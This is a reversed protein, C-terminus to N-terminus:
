EQERSEEATEDADDAFWPERAKMILAAAAAEDVGEIETLEDVSLEALDDMTCVGRDALQYALGPTMGEMTLLDDTPERSEDGTLAATLLVDRARARLTEVLDEDFGDISLMEEVPVYAVEDISTFGEDVLIQALETDADLRVMFMNVLKESEAEQREVAQEESMVNLEWGTLESALRVNQGGRGIAQALNDGTVAVDMSRNDEDMVISSVDAPAMANIVLQAPNDDWLVIDVREGNLENSVAQVRAGRMGVCAGVPDIRGDNTKVAIKARMGPDRAAGRIEITEEAIEPVEIKFLEILFEPSNRSLILQPGRGETRIEQLIARVRDNVRFIERGILNERPLLAEAAGGLDVIVSDRTVKKVSGNILSMLRSEYDAVVKEREAERVKQVIVQKATQAEIRGFESSEVEIEYEDGVNLSPDIEAAEETTLESGLIALHDDPVVVWRRFTDYEGTSRDIAVRIDAEEEEFRKRTATALAQEIAEFVISKPIGKENSFLEVVQLIEKSGM